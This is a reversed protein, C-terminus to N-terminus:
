RRGRGPLSPPLGSKGSAAAGSQLELRLTEMKKNDIKIETASRLLALYADRKQSLEQQRIKREIKRAVKDQDIKFAARKGILKIIHFGKDTEIVQPAIAGNNLAFAAKVLKPDINGPEGKRDFFGSDGRAQGSSRDAYQNILRTFSFRDKASLAEALVQGAKQREKGRNNGMPAAIFIEALRVQEPRQYEDRHANYYQKIEADGINRERVPQNVKQEILKQALLQRIVQRIEPDQDLGETRAQQYLLELDVLSDVAKLFADADARAAPRRGVYDRIESTTLVMTGVTVAVEKEVTELSKDAAEGINGIILCLGIILPMVLNCKVM